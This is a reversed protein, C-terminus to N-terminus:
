SIFDYEYFLLIILRLRLIWNNVSVEGEIIRICGFINKNFVKDM